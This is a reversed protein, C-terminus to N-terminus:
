WLVFFVSHLSKLALPMMKIHLSTKHLYLIFIALVCWAYLLFVYEVCLSRFVLYSYFTRMHVGCMLVWVWLWLNQNWLYAGGTCSNPDETRMSEHVPKVPSCKGWFHHSLICQGNQLVWTDYCGLIQKPIKWLFFALKWCTVQTSTLKNSDSLLVLHFLNSLLLLLTNPWTQLKRFIPDM